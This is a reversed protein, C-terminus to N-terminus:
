EKCGLAGLVLKLTANKIEEIYQLNKKNFDLWFTIWTQMGLFCLSSLSPKIDTTVIGKNKLEAITDRFMLYHNKWVERISSFQKDKIILTDHILIRLEPHLCIHETYAKVMYKLRELPDTISAAENIIPKFGTEILHMHVAFLLGRKSGFYHYLTPRTLKAAACIESTSAAGISGKKVLLQQTTKIIKERTKTANKERKGIIM